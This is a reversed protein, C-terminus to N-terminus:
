SWAEISFKGQLQMRKLLKQATGEGGEVVKGLIEVLEDKVARGMKAGGAVYVAGRKHLVHAIVQDSNQQLVQQVYIKHWQDRSFATHLSLAGTAQLDKWEQHYYFDATEKRCGFVLLGDPEPLGSDMTTTTTTAPLDPSPSHQRRQQERELLISRLPAVGTGAGVCLVPSQFSRRQEDWGLPLRGFSGPRIWMYIPDNRQLSALYSSCLGRYSRGLPTTGQVVAVCLELSDCSSPSAISFHRPRIPPLLELLAAVSPIRIADFDYLVDAWCRKERLIYDAYLASGSAESLSILKEQQEKFSSSSPESHADTDKDTSTNVSCYRALARLDEREPLSQIDACYTFLGRLTCKQPWATTTSWRDSSQRNMEIWEDATARIHDSLVSLLKEVAEPPNFPVVTAIDGAAYVSSKTTTNSSSSNHTATSNVTAIVNSPLQIRVHRTDQEWDVATLRDNSEVIGKMPWRAASPGIGGSGDGDHDNSGNTNSKNDGQRSPYATMPCSTGYFELFADSDRQLSVKSADTDVGDIGVPISRVTYMGEVPPYPLVDSERQVTDSETKRGLVPLLSQELWEDLDVFVGGNPTGDDGYGVSCVAKSGLQVLRAGLKRGAACFQPGYARDGLCFCAFRVGQLTTATHSRQLRCIHKFM